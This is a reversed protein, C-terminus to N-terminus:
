ASSPRTTLTPRTSRSCVWSPTSPTRIDHPMRSLFNSKAQSARRAEAAAERLNKQYELERSKQEDINRASVLLQTVNGEGDRNQAILTVLYRSGNNGLFEGTVANRDRLHGATTSFDLFAQAEARQEPVLIRRIVFEEFEALPGAAGQYQQSRGYGSALTYTGATLDVMTLEQYVSGLARIIEHRQESARLLRELEQQREERERVFRSVDSIICQFFSEGGVTVKMTTDSVWREGERSRLRYIADEPTQPASGALIRAAYARIVKGKDVTWLWSGDKQPMRCTTEYTVGEYFRGGLDQEVQPLDEPHITRIVQAGIAATLEAASDYGLMAAMEDNVYYLPFGPECYGGVVGSREGQYVLETTLTRKEQQSLEKKM